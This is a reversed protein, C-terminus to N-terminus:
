FFLLVRVIPKWPILVILVVLPRYAYIHQFLRDCTFVNLFTVKKLLVCPKWSIGVMLVPLFHVSQSFCSFACQLNVWTILVLRFSMGFYMQPYQPRIDNLLINGPCTNTFRRLRLNLPFVCAMTWLKRHTLLSLLICAAQVIRSFISYLRDRICM